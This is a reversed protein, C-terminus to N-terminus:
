ESSFVIDFYKFCIYIAPTSINLENMRNPDIKLDLPKFDAQPKLILQETQTNKM